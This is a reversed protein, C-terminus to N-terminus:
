RRRIFSIQGDAELVAQQVQTIDTIGELRLHAALEQETIKEKRLNKEVIVGKYILLTPSHQAVRRFRPFYFEALNSIYDWFVIVLIMLFLDLLSKADGVIADAALTGIIVLAIVDNPALNGTQRQPVLRLVVALAIYVLTGRAFIEWLPTELLFHEGMM